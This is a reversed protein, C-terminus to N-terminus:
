DPLKTVAVRATGDVEAVVRLTKADFEIGVLRLGTVAADVRVGDSSKRFDAIAADISNRANAALPVLDVVANEALTRELYPVAAQAAIGLLGFAAESEVDLAIDTLRLVQHTSDLVPRGWVHVTAEAGLGLWSKNENAKVRLSLLLRDGSAALNVSRITATFASSKDDPFSKGKLQAELLRNVDSFPIDIPVAINVRGQEIQPVVELQAPFPCDPKTETPVIRTQAEVGITLTLAAADIHPQAAFARTPRLELWLNPMGAAAAGLSISRCMKAWEQRAALELVPDDRLRAQLATVQENIARDLFPKIENSVSLRVGMIALSADALAVQPTLNPEIRWAPLISPHSTLTVDGRIDARQDLTKGQLNQIGQGLRGGLLDGIAGALNGAEGSVQGRARLIGSLTTSVVLTDGRGTVALPGRAVTWDLEANSLLQPVPNDRKGALNRPAARELATHIAPLAIVAPTVIVSKRTAPTLPQIEVLAPRRDKPGPWLVDLAWLAAGFSVIAILLGIAIKGWPLPM